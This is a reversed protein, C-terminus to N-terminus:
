REDRAARHRAGLSGCDRDPPQDSAARYYGGSDSGLPATGISIVRRDRWRLGIGFAPIDLRDSFGLCRRKRREPSQGFLIHCGQYDLQVLRIELEMSAM